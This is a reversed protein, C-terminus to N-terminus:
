GGFYNNVFWGIVTTIITIITIEAKKRAVKQPITEKFGQNYHVKKSNIHNWLSEKIKKQGTKIESVEHEISELRVAHNEMTVAGSKLDKKIVKVDDSIDGLKENIMGLVTPDAM